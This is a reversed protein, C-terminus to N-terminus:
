TLTGDVRKPHRLLYDISQMENLRSQTRKFASSMEGTCYLKDLAVEASIVVRVGQDYMVDIFYIFLIAYVTDEAKLIPINALFITDFRRAIELYDLQSRPSNCIVEFEFWVARETCRVIPVQRNQIILFGGEQIQQALAYFETQLRRETDPNLPYLYATPLLKRGLRYDRRERLCILECHTKLLAIAPLFQARQLGHLYLEDPMTNSTIVLVIGRAFLAKLLEALILAHAVDNVLFEDFCLLRITKALKAAILRLPDKQGQRARLESDIQQMFHHFHVRAKKQETVQEYFLDMLYTKGVGVAGQIYIGIPQPIKFLWNFWGHDPLQLENALRQMSNIVQRQAKDDKIKGQFIAEEYHRMLMM